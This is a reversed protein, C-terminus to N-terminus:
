NLFERKKLERVYAAVNPDRAVVDNIENDFSDAAKELPEMDLEFSFMQKLKSLLAHVAKPNPISIYYPVAAWLSLMLGPRAQRVNSLVGVIGTPGEYNTRKLENKEELVPDNSFGNIGIPLTYLVDALYAGLTVVERVGHGEMVAELNACYTKWHLNPETGHFLIIDRNTGPLKGAYFDNTQWQVKRQRGEVLKVLPRNETFVYFEEPDLSAFKEANFAEIMRRVANTAATGGDNWGEFAAVFIPDVLKPETIYQVANVSTM